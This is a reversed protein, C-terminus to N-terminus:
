IHTINKPHEGDKGGERGGKGKRRQQLECGEQGHCGEGIYKKYSESVCAKKAKKEKKGKRIMAKGGKEGGVRRSEGERGGERREKWM